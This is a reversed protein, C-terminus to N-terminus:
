SECDGRDAQGHDAGHDHESDRDEDEVDAFLRGVLGLALTMERREIEARQLAATCHM